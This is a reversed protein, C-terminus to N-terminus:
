FKDWHKPVPEKKPDILYHTFWDLNQQMIARCERPKTIPHAM